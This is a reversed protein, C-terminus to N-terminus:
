ATAGSVRRTIEEVELETLFLPYTNRDELEARLADSVKRATHEDHPLGMQFLKERTASIEYVTNLGWVITYEQGVLSPAFPHLYERGHLRAELVSRIYPDLEMLFAHDGVIPKNPHVAIGTVKSVVKSYARLKELRIGTTVGYLIELSVAVEELAALGCDTAIGNATVDVGKAGGTVASCTAATALGFTNHIHPVIPVDHILGKRLQKLYYRWAEPTTPSKSHHIAAYTIDKQAARNIQRALEAPTLHDIRGGVMTKAVEVGRSRAYEYMEDFRAIEGRTLDVGDAGRDIAWDISEKTMWATGFLKFKRQLRAVAEFMKLIKPSPPRWGATLNVIMYKVGVEDAAAAIDVAGDVTWYCGPTEAMKRLTSDLVFVSEALDFDRIVEESFNVPNVFWKEPNM